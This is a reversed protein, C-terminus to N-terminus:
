RRRNRWLWGTGALTLLFVVTILTWRVVPEASSGHHPVPSVYWVIKALVPVIVTLTLGTWKQAVTWYRARCVIVVAAIMAAISLLSLVINELYPLVESAVLLALPLWVRSRRRGPATAPAAPIGGLEQRATEAIARPDGMERLIEHVSGPREALAVAIHEGLDAILEQRAAAPLMSTEREVAALYERTLTEDTKTKM